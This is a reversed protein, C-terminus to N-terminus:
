RAKFYRAQMEAPSPPDVLVPVLSIEALKRASLKDDSLGVMERDQASYCAYGHTAMILYGAIMHPDGEIIIGVRQCERITEILTNYADQNIGPQAKARSAADGRSGFMLWFAGTNERAFRIYAEDLAHLRELPDSGAKELEHQQYRHLEAFGRETLAELLADKDAFHRYVATHSVGLEAALERLSFGPGGREAILRVAVDQLANRLDNHHYGRKRASAGVENV